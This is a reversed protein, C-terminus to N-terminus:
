LAEAVIFTSGGIYVLDEAKAAKIAANKAQNVSSYIQYNFNLQVAMKELELLNLARPINAQTLYYSAEKPFMKLLDFVNKDNVFGLVFHLQEKSEAKIQKLINILGEENHAIDAIVKPRDSLIEWRGRLGTNQVVQNLGKTFDIQNVRWGLEQLKLWSLYVTRLNSDQYNGLLDTQLKPYDKFDECFEIPASVDMAKSEFIEREGSSKGIIIPIGKKIIGAKEFAIKDLTDGLIDMHDLSVNTIISLIPQLINTSDLRGGLGTEIIAIDVENNRFYHFALAVTWEFFSPQIAEFETQYDAVFHIVEKEPIMQGNIRIRERFDKLHPSTYLGTKYGASQFISALMHATSGKGNTGAIHISKFKQEPRDLLKSLAKINGLDKKFAKAGQRQYIPLQKFLYDLTEQYSKL